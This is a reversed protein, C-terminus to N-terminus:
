KAPLTQGYAIARRVWGELATDDAIVENPLTAYGKM